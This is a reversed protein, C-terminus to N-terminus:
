FQFYVFEVSKNIGFLLLGFVLMIYVLWRLLKVKNLREWYSIMKPSTYILDMVFLITIIVFILAGGLILDSTSTFMHTLIYAADNLSNARFFVWGINVLIFTWALCIFRKAYQNIKIKGTIPQFVIEIILYLGHLLGWILFGVAAGHWLGSIIFTILINVYWRGVKVRNGGLPIYVYDRFWTSLSIHWRKWFEGISKSLYPTRFNQKLNFGMMRAAGIAIDTYGSFDCYIQIAFFVTAIILYPGSYSSPTAYIMNVTTALTDAIVMKKFFGWLILRAGEVARVYEFKHEVYFQPLFDRARLIPGAVLQPFFSVYVAFIGLHREPKIKGRYIDITYSITQFTYFSIGVPLLVKLTIPDMPIAFHNLLARTSDSFFNFYKFAFLLGLNISLSLGLFIKKKLKSQANYIQIGAVYDVLTSIMILIIYEAKWSM